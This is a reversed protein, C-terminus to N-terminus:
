KKVAQWNKQQKERAGQKWTGRSNKEKMGGQDERGKRYATENMLVVQAERM